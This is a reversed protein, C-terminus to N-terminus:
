KCIAGIEEIVKGLRAEKIGLARLSEAHQLVSRCLVIKEALLATKERRSLTSLATVPYLGAQEILTQLNAGRPHEWSLLDLGECKAYQMAMSTFKTNTVILGKATPEVNKLDDIRAKVYLVVKLDTKFGPTNHFKAEVYTQVGDKKLLVDIEHEVCKGKVVLNTTAEFGNKRFLEALYAEFPFGSPGFELLARRLSYRAAPGQPEHKRLLAFADRYIDTTRMGDSLKSEVSQVIAEVTNRDAGSKELSNFLKERNFSEQTGDAKIILVAM